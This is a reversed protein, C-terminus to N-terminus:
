KAKESYADYNKKMDSVKMPESVDKESFHFLVTYINSVVSFFKCFIFFTTSNKAKQDIRCGFNFLAWCLSHSHQFLVLIFFYGLVLLTAVVVIVFVLVAVFRSWSSNAHTYTRVYTHSM